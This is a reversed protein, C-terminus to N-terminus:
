GRVIWKEKAQSKREPRPSGGRAIGLTSGYADALCACLSWHASWRQGVWGGPPQQLLPCVCRTPSVLGDGAM